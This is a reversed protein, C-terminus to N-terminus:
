FFEGGGGGGGMRNLASKLILIGGVGQGELHDRAKFKGALIRYTNELLRAV